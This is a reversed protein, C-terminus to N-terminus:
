TWSTTDLTTLLVRLSLRQVRTLSLRPPSSAPFTKSPIDAEEMYQKLEERVLYTQDQGVNSLIQVASARGRRITEYLDLAREIDEPTRADCLVMGLVVGDELGM